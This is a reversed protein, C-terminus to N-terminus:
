ASARFEDLAQWDFDVGHGPKDGATMIGDSLPPPNRMFRELGFSHVELYSANPVAALLHIHLEHVGHTTVQLQHARALDAVRMWNTVGGINAVDPEPYTLCGSEVFSRFEYITHLNEGAALPVGGQQAIQLHGLIDDPITPEELWCIGYESM